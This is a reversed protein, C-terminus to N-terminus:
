TVHIFRGVMDMYADFVGFFDLLGLAGLCLQFVPVFPFVREVLM